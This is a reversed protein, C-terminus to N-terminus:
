RPKGDPTGPASSASPRGDLGVLEAGAELVRRRRHGDLAAVAEVGHADLVAVAAGPPRQLALREEELGGTRPDERDAVDAAARHPPDGRRDALAGHRHPEDVLV